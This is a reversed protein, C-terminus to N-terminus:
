RAQDPCHHYQESPDNQHRGKEKEAGENSVASRRGYRGGPQQDEEDDAKTESEATETNRGAGPGTRQLDQMPRGRYAPEEKKRSRKAEKEEAIVSTKVYTRVPEPWHDRDTCYSKNGPQDTRPRRLASTSVVSIRNLWPRIIPNGTM